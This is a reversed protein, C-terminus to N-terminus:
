DSLLWLVNWNELRSVHFCWDHTSMQGVEDPGIAFRLTPADEAM